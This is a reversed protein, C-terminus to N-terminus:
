DLGQEASWLEVEMGDRLFAVGATIVKDGANLGEFVELENGRVGGARVRRLELQSSEDNFVFVPVDGDGSAPVGTTLGADLALASIPILYATKGELYSDFNFTLSATMGARLGLAAAPLTVEIPFANGDGAQASILTVLGVVEVEDGLTPFQVRAAQEYHVLRVLSEPVLAQVVMADDSQLIFAGKNAGIEQFPEVSREAITGSFPARLEARALDRESEQRKSQAGELAARASRLTATAVDVAAKSVARQSLLKEAREYAQQAEVVKARAGGLEARAREAALRLPKADLTALLQGEEITQGVEVAVRDVTGSVGFSLPSASAAAVVGSFTRVQGAATPGVEFARVRPIRDPVPEEDNGCAAIFSASVVVLLAVSRGSSTTFPVM